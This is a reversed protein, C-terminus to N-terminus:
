KCWKKCTKREAKCANRSAKTNARKKCLTYSSSCSNKCQEKPKTTGMAAPVAILFVFGAFVLRMGM